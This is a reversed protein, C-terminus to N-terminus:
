SRAEATATAANSLADEISRTFMRTTEEIKRLMRPREHAPQIAVNEAIIACLATLREDVSYGQVVAFIARHLDQAPTNGPEKDSM